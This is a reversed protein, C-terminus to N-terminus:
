ENEVLVHPEDDFAALVRAHEDASLADDLVLHKFPRAKEFKRALKKLDAPWRIMEHNRVSARRRRSLGALAAFGKAAGARGRSGARARRRAGGGVRRAPTRGRGEQAGAAARPVECRAQSDAGASPPPDGPRDGRRDAA